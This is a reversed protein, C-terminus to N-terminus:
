ENGGLIWNPTLGSRKLMDRAREANDYRLDNLEPDPDEWVKHSFLRSVLQEVRVFDDETLNRYLLRKRDDGDFVQLAPALADRLLPVWARLAGASFVRAAKLHATDKREPAWKDVLTRRVIINLVRVFNDREEDRHYSESEFEDTLPPSAVFEAFFTKELRYMSLPNERTRNEEAIYDRLENEPQELIDRYIMSRIRRIAEARSLNSKTRMFNMFAAENKPGPSLLFEEWDEKAMSSYKELLTSTYFPMQRLKDHASLNTEKLRRVDPEVYIKCDLKERGAWIQAAVKHQGDFLLLSGNVLRCVAPQLQTHTLLHRYLEWLRDPELARPQLEVDNKIFAAPVAAFFYKEGTAPCALLQTEAPGGELYLTIKEGAREVSIPQGFKGVGLKERLLDDLRQKRAGEFFKRLRLRDRYETLSLNRKERNHKKCVVAINDVASTGGESFPHIHDFEVDAETEIPHDDIFCRMGQRELVAAKEADTLQRRQTAAM